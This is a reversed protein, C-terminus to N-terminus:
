FYMRQASTLTIIITAILAMLLIVMGINDISISKAPMSYDNVGDTSKVFILNLDQFFVINIVM